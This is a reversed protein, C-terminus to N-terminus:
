TGPAAPTASWHVLGTDGSSCAPLTGTVRLTGTAKHVGKFRGRIKYTAPQGHPSATFHFRGTSSVRIHLSFNYSVASSGGGTCAIPINNLEFRTIVKAHHGKYKFTIDVSSDTVPGAPGHLTRTLGLAVAPLLLVIVVSLLGTRKM